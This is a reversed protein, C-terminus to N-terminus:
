LIRLYVMVYHILSSTRWSDVGNPIYRIVPPFIPIMTCEGIGDIHHLRASAALRTSLTIGINRLIILVRCTHGAALVIGLDKEKRDKNLKNLLTVSGESIERHLEEMTLVNNKITAVQGIMYMGENFQTQEDVEHLEDTELHIIGKSAVRLRGLNM